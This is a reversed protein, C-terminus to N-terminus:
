IHILSLFSLIRTEISQLIAEPMFFLRNVFSFLSVFFTNVVVIRM